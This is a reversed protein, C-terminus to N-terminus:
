IAKLAKLGEIISPLVPFGCHGGKPLTVQQISLGVAKYAAVGEETQKKIYDDKNIKVWTKFNKKM